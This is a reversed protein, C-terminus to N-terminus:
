SVTQFSAPLGEITPRHYRSAGLYPGKSGNQTSPLTGTRCRYPSKLCDRLTVCFLMDALRLRPRGNTQTPEPVSRCLDSLLAVFKAKESTQAANYSPWSRVRPKPKESETERKAVHETAFIHKCRQGRIEHDPCTCFPKGGNLRVWYRGRGSQSPVAWVDGKRHIKARETLEVGRQQRVNMPTDKRTLCVGFGYFLPEQATRSQSHPKRDRESNASRSPYMLAASRFRVPM